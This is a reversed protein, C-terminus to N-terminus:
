GAISAQYISDITATLITNFDADSQQASVDQALARSFSAIVGQNQALRRNAEGLTYGGSLAVVALVKPHGVLPQYQNAVEPLTLKFMVQQGEPVGELRKLLADCLMAEAQRKDAM